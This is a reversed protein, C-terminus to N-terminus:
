RLPAESDKKNRELADAIDRMSEYMRFVVIMMEGTLRALLIGVPIYVIGGLILLLGAASGSFLAILGMLMTILGGLIAFAVNVWFLIMIITPAILRRFFLVDMIFKGRESPPGPQPPAPSGYGGRDDAPRDNDRAPASGRAPPASSSGSPPGGFLGKVTSANVWQTGGEQFVLDDPTLQGATALQKLQAASVPGEQKGNKAYYWDPMPSETISTLWRRGWLRFRLRHHRSHLGPWGNTLGIEMRIAVAQPKADERGSV